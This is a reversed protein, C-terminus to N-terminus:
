VGGAKLVALMSVVLAVSRDLFVAVASERGVGLDILQHALRNAAANLQAYSVSTDGCVVAVADPTARVQIQFLEPVGAAPVPVGTDNCEVLLWHREAVTLVDIGNVPVDPDAVVMELLRIWRALLADVTPPDFLDSAYELSGAIGAPAGHSDHQESLNFSLDFKAVGLDIPELRPALGPLPFDPDPANHVALRVQSLPHHALSGAPSLVEVLYEFPVDQHAYASLATNWIRALLERFTPDGSTDTRLVLTNVFFGVLDDMADDTRGAIPSGIPIDDGAGLRSLLAALAAHLV